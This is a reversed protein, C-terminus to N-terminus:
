KPPSKNITNKDKTFFASIKLNYLRNLRSSLSSCPAILVSAKRVIGSNDIFGKIILTIRTKSVFLSSLTFKLCNAVVKATNELCAGCSCFISHIYLLSCHFILITKLKENM